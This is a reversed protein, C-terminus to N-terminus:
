EGSLACIVNKDGVKVRIEEITKEIFNKPTWDNKSNCIDVAFNSLIEEGLNTNDVEPTSNYEM